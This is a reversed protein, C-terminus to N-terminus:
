AAQANQVSGDAEGKKLLRCEKRIMGFTIVDGDPLRKRGEEVFGMAHLARINRTNDAKCRASVRVQGMDEFIMRFLERMPQISWGGDAMIEYDEGDVSSFIVVFGVDQAGNSVRWGIACLRFSVGLPTEIKEFIPPVVLGARQAMAIAAADDRVLFTRKM